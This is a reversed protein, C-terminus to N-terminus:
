EKELVIRQKAGKAIREFFRKFEAYESKLITHKKTESRQKFEIRNGHYGYDLSFKIWPSEESFSPPLYKVKLGPPLDIYLDTDKSELINLDIDYIRKDTAVLSTDVSALQPLINLNGAITAYEPGIFDYSLVVPKNLDDLNEINYKILRGGISFEQVKEKITQAILEPQTYTLWYRQAQDYMGSSYIDKHASITGDDNMKLELVQRILNHRPPYLPTEMMKYGEDQFVLVTREQDDAPLDDFSCTSATPDMFVIRSDLSVAAICHNFQVTPFDESLNYDEKTPILVPWAFLGAERLMTVLLVAQDKCDGYKNKFIDSAAHPEYGADGYEVAVYRINKACYNYIAAAKAKEDAAGATLEKVKASIASDAKIKDRSLDQWWRYVEQWDNFTSMLVTPNVLVGPPMSSEPTIQPINKFVWTYVRFEADDQIKPKLEAGFTNYDENIIKLHPPTNKPFRVSFKASIVPETTQLPYNVVFDKKNILQNNTVKVKYEIIAGEAVEPFSIIFARANSYLPFDTYRSVDRIHRGGVQTVKGDPSITRASELEVKEYTSDYGVQTEAFEDKGRENLIKILYHMYSIQIGEKSVEIGEDASLIVAGAEPFDEQAPASSLLRAVKVDIEKTPGSGAQKEIQNIREGALKIFEPDSRVQAYSKLAQDFLNLKESTLARYYRCEDDGCELNNFAMLADTFNGLHYYSIARLKKAEKLGTKNLTELAEAFKGHNYYLSGLEFNLRDLDKQGKILNEYETRAREFYEASQRTYEKAKGSDVSQACGVAAILFLFVAPFFIFRITNNKVATDIIRM